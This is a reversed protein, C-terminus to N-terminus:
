HHRTRSYGRNRLPWMWVSPFCELPVKKAVIEPLLFRPPIYVGYYAVGDGAAMRSGGFSGSQFMCSGRMIPAVSSSLDIITLLFHVIFLVNSVGM